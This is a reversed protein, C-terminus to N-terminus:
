YVFLTAIQLWYDTQLWALSHLTCCCRFAETQFDSRQKGQWVVDESISDFGPSACQNISYYSIWQTPFRLAMASYIFHQQFQVLPKFFAAWQKLFYIPVSRPSEIIHEMMEISSFSLCFFLRLTSLCIVIVILQELMISAGARFDRCIERFLIFCVIHQQTTRKCMTVIVSSSQAGHSNYKRKWIM